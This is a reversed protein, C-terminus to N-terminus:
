MDDARKVWENAREFNGAEEAQIALMYNFCKSSYESWELAGFLFRNGKGCFGGLSLATPAQALAGGYSTTESKNKSAMASTDNVTPSAVAGAKSQAAAGAVASAAAEAALPKASAYSATFALGAAILLSAFTTRM